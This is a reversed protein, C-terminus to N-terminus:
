LSFFISGAQGHNESTTSETAAAEAILAAKYEPFSNVNDTLYIQAGEIHQAGETSYHATLSSLPVGERPNKEFSAGAGVAVEFRNYIGSQDVILGIQQAGDAMALNAVAMRVRRLLGAEQTTLADGNKIKTRLADFQASRLLPRIYREEVKEIIPRLRWFIFRGVNHVLAANMQETKRLFTTRTSEKAETSWATFTAENAELFDLVKDFGIGASKLLQTKLQDVRAQSAPATTESRTVTLGAATIGVDLIPIFLVLALNALAYQCRNLLESQEPTLGVPNLSHTYLQALLPEGLIPALHQEQAQFVTSRFAEFDFSAPVAVHQRLTDKDPIIIKGPTM